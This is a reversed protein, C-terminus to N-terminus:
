EIADLWLRRYLNDAAKKIAEPEVMWDKALADYDLDHWMAQLLCREPQTLRIFLFDEKDSELLLTHNEENYNADFLREISEM